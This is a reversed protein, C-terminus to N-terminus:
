HEIPLVLPHFLEPALEEVGDDTGLFILAPPEGPLEMVSGPLGQGAEDHADFGRLAHRRRGFGMDPLLQCVRPEDGHAEQLFHARQHLVEPGGKQIVQPQCGGEAGVGLGMQFPHPHGHVELGFAEAVAKRGRHLGGQEADGLLAHVVDDFVGPSACDPYPKLPIAVLYPHRHLVIAPAEIHVGIEAGIAPLAGQAQHAHLLPGGKHSTGEADAGPHPLPGVDHHLDLYVGQGCHPCSMALLIRTSSASSWGMTRSPRLAIRSASGSMSTTPSAALPCPAASITPLSLGSMMMISRAMGPILPMSAVRWMLCCFGSILIMARVM